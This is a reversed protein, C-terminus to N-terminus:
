FHAHILVMFVQALMQLTTSPCTIHLFKQGLFPLCKLICLAQKHSCKNRSVGVKPKKETTGLGIYGAFFDSFLFDTCTIFCWTEFTDIKWHLIVHACDLLLPSLSAGKLLELWSWPIQTKCHRMTMKLCTKSHVWTINSSLKNAKHFIMFIINWMQVLFYYKRITKSNM